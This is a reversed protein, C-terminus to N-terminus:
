LDWSEVVDCKKCVFNFDSPGKFKDMPQDCNPCYCASIVELEDQDADWQISEADSM